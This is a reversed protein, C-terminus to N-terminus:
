VLKVARGRKDLGTKCLVCVVALLHGKVTIAPMLEKQNTLQAEIADKAHAFHIRWTVMIIM